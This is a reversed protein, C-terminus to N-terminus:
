NSKADLDEKTQVLHERIASILIVKCRHIALTQAHVPKRLISAPHEIHIQPVPRHPKISLKHVPDMWDTAIQGVCVILRPNAIDIFEELRPKCEAVCAADPEEKERGVLPICAIINNYAVKYVEPLFAALVPTVVQTHLLNGSKGVFPKGLNNESDGPAEGIFLIDCPVDGKGLVVRRRTRHYECAACNKWEEIHFRLREAPTSHVVPLSSM